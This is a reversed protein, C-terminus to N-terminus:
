DELGSGDAPSDAAPTRAMVRISVHSQQERAAPVLLAPYLAHGFLTGDAMLLLVCVPSFCAAKRLSPGAHASLRAHANGPM